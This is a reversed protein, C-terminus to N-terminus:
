EKELFQQILTNIGGILAQDTKGALIVYEEPELNSINQVQLDPDELLQRAQQEYCIYARIQEKKLDEAAQKAGSYDVAKIGDAEFLQTRTAEDLGSAVGVASNEFSGVTLAFDGKRTVAYFFGKGYPTSLLYDDTLSGSTNICGLAIDAQKSSVAEFAEERTCVQYEVKVGLAEAIYEALEPEMGSPADNEMHTYTSDTDVIAVQFVGAKRIDAVHDSKKGGCGGIIVALMAAAAMM